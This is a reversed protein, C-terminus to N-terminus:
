FWMLLISIIPLTEVSLVYKEFLRSASPCAPNSSKVFDPVAKRTKTVIEPRWRNQSIDFEFYQFKGAFAVQLKKQLEEAYNADGEFIGAEYLEVEAKQHTYEADRPLM